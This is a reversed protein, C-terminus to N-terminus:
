CDLIFFITEILFIFFLNFSDFRLMISLNITHSLIKGSGTDVQFILSLDCLVQVNRVGWCQLIFFISEILFVFDFNLINFFFTTPLSFLQRLLDTHKLCLYTNKKYENSRIKM